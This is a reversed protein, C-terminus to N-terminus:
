SSRDCPYCWQGPRSAPNTRRSHQHSWLHKIARWRVKHDPLFMKMIEVLVGCSSIRCASGPWHTAEHSRNKTVSRRKKCSVSFYSGPKGLEAPTKKRILSRKFLKARDHASNGYDYWSSWDVFGTFPNEHSSTNRSVNTWTFNMWLTRRKAPACILGRGHTAMFNIIWSNCKVGYPFDGENERNCWGFLWWKAQKIEAIAEDITNLKM